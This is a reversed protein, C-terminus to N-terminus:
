LKRCLVLVRYPGQMDNRQWHNIRRRGDMLLEHKNWRLLLIAGATSSPEATTIQVPHILEWLQILSWSEESICLDTRLIQLTTGSNKLCPSKCLLRNITDIADHNPLIHGGTVSQFEEWLADDHRHAGMVGLSGLYGAVV